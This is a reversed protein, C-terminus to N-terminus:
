PCTGWQPQIATNGEFGADLDFNTPKSTINTVCWHSLDQNFNFAGRFLENMNTVNSTDWNGIDENFFQAFMFM